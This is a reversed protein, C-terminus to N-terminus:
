ESLRHPPLEVNTIKRGLMIVRGSYRDAGTSSFEFVYRRWIKIQGDEDRKLWLARLSISQDLLQLEVEKCAKNAARFATEKIRQASWWYTLGLCFLTLWLLDSLEFFM